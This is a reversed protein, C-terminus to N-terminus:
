QTVPELTMVRQKELPLFTFKVARDGIEEVRWVRDLTDGARAERSEGQRALFLVVQDGDVMRELYTYPLPPVLPQAKVPPPPPPQWSREAFADEVDAEGGPKKMRAVDLEPLSAERGAPRVAPGERAASGERGAPRQPKTAEV